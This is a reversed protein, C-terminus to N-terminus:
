KIEREISVVNDELFEALRDKLIPPLNKVAHAITYLLEEPDQTQDEEIEARMTMWEDHLNVHLRHLAPLAHASGKLRMTIIDNQIEELKARRFEIPDIIIKGPTSSIPNPDPLMPPSELSTDVKKNKNKIIRYITQKSVGFRDALQQYTIGGAKYLAAIKIRDREDLHM